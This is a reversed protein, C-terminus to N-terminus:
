YSYMSCDRLFGGGLKLANTNQRQCDVFQNRRQQQRQQMFNNLNNNYQMPQRIKGADSLSQGTRSMGQFFAAAAQNGRLGCGTLLWALLLLISVYKM